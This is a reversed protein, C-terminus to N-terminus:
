YKIFENSKNILIFFLFNSQLKACTSPLSLMEQSTGQSAPSHAQECWLAAEEWECCILKRM